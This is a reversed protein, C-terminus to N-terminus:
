ATKEYNRDVNTTEALSSVAHRLDPFSLPMSCCVLTLDEKSSIRLEANIGYCLALRRRVNELGVGVRGSTRPRSGFKGTNAVQVKIRDNETSVTLSVFGESSYPAVGHKVANEVLPQISLVPIEAGLLDQDIQIRTKLRPGLRLQEIELYSQTIALEQELPIFTRDSRLLYHFVDALNLALRRAETNDRSITGYLTNLSNFLFHPNIQAQLARLEAQAALAQTAAYRKQEVQEELTRGIRALLLIDSHYYPRGGRRPGLLLLIADGKSFRLPLAAEAWPARASVPSWSSELLATPGPLEQLAAVDEYDQFQSFRCEFFM